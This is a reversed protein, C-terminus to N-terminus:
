QQRSKNYISIFQYEREVVFGAAMATRLSASNEEFCDWSAIVGRDVCVNIFADTVIRGYGKGRHEVSTQVDIEALGRAVCATYCVALASGSKDFLCVGFGNELFDKRSKWFKTDIALGLSDIKDLNLGTITHLDIAGAPVYDRAVKERRLLRIRKRDKMNFRDPRKTLESTLALPPSYLHFYSPLLPSTEFLDAFDNVHKSESKIFGFCAKHIVFFNSTGTEDAFIRGNQVGDIVADTLPFGTDLGRGFFDHQSVESVM